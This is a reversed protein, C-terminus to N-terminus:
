SNGKQNKPADFLRQERIGNERDNLDPAKKKNNGKPDRKNAVHVIKAGDGIGVWRALEAKRQKYSAGDQSKIREYSKFIQQVDSLLSLIRPSIERNGEDGGNGNRGRNINKDAEDCHRN